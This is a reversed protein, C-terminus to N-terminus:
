EKKGAPRVKAFEKKLRAAADAPPSKWEVKAKPHDKKLHAIDDETTLVHQLRIKTLKKLGKLHSFGQDYTLLTETIDIEELTPVKGLHELSRDTIRTTYQPSLKVVRLKPLAVLSAVGEDTVAYAHGLDVQELTRIRALAATAKNDIRCGGLRVSRLAPLDGLAALETGFITKGSPDTFWGWHDLGFSKIGKWAALSRFGKETLRAGNAFFFEVTEMPGIAALTEDNVPLERIDLYIRKLGKLKGIRRYDELTMKVMHGIFIESVEGNKEKRLRAGKAELWAIPDNKDSKPSTEKTQGDALTGVSALLLLCVSWRIM